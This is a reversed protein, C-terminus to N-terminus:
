TGQPPAPASATPTAAPARTPTSTPAPPAVAGLREAMWGIAAARADPHEDLLARNHAAGPLLVLKKPPLGAEDLSRASAERGPDDVAALVLTSRPAPLAGGALDGLRDVTASVAVAADAWGRAAAIVALSAGTSLGLAGVSASRSRLWASAAEVDRPFGKPDSMLRPSLKVAEGSAKRTSEGHGRLDIARTALGRAAWEPAMPEWERRDRSFDHLLLVAPAGPLGPVPRYSAALRVGDATDITVRYPDAPRPVATPTPKKAKAPRKKKKSAAAGPASALLLGLLLAAAALAAARALGSDRTATM